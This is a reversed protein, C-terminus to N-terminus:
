KFKILNPNEIHIDAQTLTRGFLHNPNRFIASYWKPTKMKYNLDTVTVTNTSTSDQVEHIKIQSVKKMEKFGNGYIYVKYYNKNVVEVSDIHTYTSQIESKTQYEEGKINGMALLTVMSIFMLSFLTSFVSDMIRTSKPVYASNFTKFYFLFLGTGIGILILWGLLTM